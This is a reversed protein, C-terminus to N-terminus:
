RIGLVKAAYDKWNGSPYSTHTYAFFEKMKNDESLNPNQMRMFDDFLKRDEPSLSNYMKRALELYEPHKDHVDHAAEHTFVMENPSSFTLTEVKGKSCQNYKCIIIEDRVLQDILKYDYQNGIIKRSLIANAWPLVQTVVDYHAGGIHRVAEDDPINKPIDGSYKALGVVLRAFQEKGERPFIYFGNGVYRPRNDIEFAKEVPDNSETLIRNIVERLDPREVSLRIAQYAMTRGSEILGNISRNRKPSLEGERNLEMEIAHLFLSNIEKFNMYLGEADQSTFKQFSEKFWQRNFALKSYAERHILEAQENYPLSKFEKSNNIEELLRYMKRIEELSTEDLNAYMRDADKLKERFTRDQELTKKVYEVTPQRELVQSVNEAKVGGGEGMLISAALVAGAIKKRIEDWRSREVAPQFSSLKREAKSQVEIKEQNKSRKSEFNINEKM